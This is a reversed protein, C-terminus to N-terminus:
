IAYSTISINEIPVKNFLSYAAQIINANPTIFEVSQLGPIKNKLFFELESLNFDKGYDNLVLPNTYDSTLSKGLAEINAQNYGTLFRFIMEIAPITTYTTIVGQPEYGGSIFPLIRNELATLLPAGAVTGDMPQVRFYVISGQIQAHSRKVDLQFNLWREVNTANNVTFKTSFYNLANQAISARTEPQQGGTLLGVLAISVVKRSPSQKNVTVVDTTGNVVAGTTKLYTLEAITDIEPKQGFGDEGFYIVASGQEDPLVVFDKSSPDSQGFVRVRKWYVNEINVRITEVDIMTNRINYRSGNFPQAESLLSGEHLLLPLTTPVVSAPVTVPDLNTFRYRKTKFELILTGPPYTYDTASPEFEVNFTQQAARCVKPAYGYEIAKTFVDAYVNMKTIFSENAWANIYYFDKESFLCLLEVLFRGFDSESRDTWEPFHIDALKMSKDFMDIMTVNLLLDEDPIIVLDAYKKLKQLTALPLLALDQLIQEKESM